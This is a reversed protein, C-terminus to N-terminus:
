LLLLKRQTDDMTKMLRIMLKGAKNRELIKSHVYVRLVNRTQEVVKPHLSQVIDIGDALDADKQLEITYKWKTLNGIASLVKDLSLDQSAEYLYQYEKLEGNPSLKYDRKYLVIRFPHELHEPNTVLRKRKMGSSHKGESKRQAKTSSRLNYSSQSM